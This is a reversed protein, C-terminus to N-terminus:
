CKVTKIDYIVIAADTTQAHKLRLSKVTKEPCPNKIPLELLTYDKGNVDKGCIPRAGYTGIYGQHRFLISEIPKGYCQSHKCINLGYGIDTAAVSGDEYVLEYEAVKFTPKWMIRDVALDTAHTIFITDAKVNVDVTLEPAEASIVAAKEYPIQWLLENPINRIDGDLAVSECTGDTCIDAVACKADWLLPKVLENYSLRYNSDYSADWLMNGTFHMDYMKGEYTYSDENCEIWMSLEGGM